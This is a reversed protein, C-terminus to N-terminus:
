FSTEWSAFAGGPDVAIGVSSAEDGGDLLLWLIGGVTAAVSVGTLVTSVVALTEGSDADSQSGPPCTDDTPCRDELDTFKGHAVLGTVLATIASAGAVGILTWAGINVSSESTPPADSPGPEGEQESEEGATQREALERDQALRDEIPRRAAADNTSELWRELVGAAEEYSRAREFATAANLLLEPRLSLRHAEQFERAADLYQGRQFYANASEFHQRAQADNLDPEEISQPQESAEPQESGESQESAEPLAPEGGEPPADQGVAVSGSLGVVIMAAVVASDRM